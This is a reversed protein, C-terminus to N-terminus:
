NPMSQFWSPMTALVAVTVASVYKTRVGCYIEGPLVIQVTDAVLGRRTRTYLSLALVRCATM